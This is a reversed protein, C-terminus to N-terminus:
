GARRLSPNRRLAARAMALQHAVEAAILEAHLEIPDDHLELARHRAVLADLATLLQDAISQRISDRTPAPIPRTM